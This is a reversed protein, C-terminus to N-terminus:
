FSVIKKCMEPEAEYREFVHLSMDDM